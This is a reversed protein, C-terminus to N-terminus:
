TNTYKLESVLNHHGLVRPDSKYEKKKWVVHILM